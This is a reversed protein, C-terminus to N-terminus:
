KVKQVGIDRIRVKLLPPGSVQGSMIGMGKQVPLSALRALFTMSENDIVQGIVRRGLKDLAPAEDATILFASSYAEDESESGSGGYGIGKAPISVLGAVTHPRPFPENSLPPPRFQPVFNPGAQRLGKSKAYSKAQSPVGFEVATGSCITPVSGGDLLSVPASEIGISNDLMEKDMSSIGRTLFQLLQKVSTPCDNGYLGFRVFGAEERREGIDVIMQVVHTIKNTVRPIPKGAPIEGLKGDQRCRLDSADCRQELGFADDPLSVLPAFVIGTQLTNRILKRRSFIEKSAIEVNNQSSSIKMIWGTTVYVQLLFLVLFSQRRYDM